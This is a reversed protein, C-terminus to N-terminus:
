LRHLQREKAGQAAGTVASPPSGAVAGVVAGSGPGVVHSAADAALYSSRVLPGAEVHGIGLAQGAEALQQFEDPHWWKVVPLHSASPRLYQGLTVIDTQIAALDALAAVLEAETEGLGVILSTKTTLGAQKALALVALSRAYSAQPRVAPQLRLVTELNHNLVVPQQAFVQELADRQGKFDPILLEVATHPCRQRLAQLCAVFQSAGGDPLDDRAVATLVVYDLQMQAVADALQSPEQPDPQEPRRTDVLCFGCARTCREGNIMFTATGANWCESINPCGAEECVTALNHERVTQKLRWYNPGPNFKARMWSPKRERYPLSVAVGAESLKRQHRPSTSHEFPPEAAPIPNPNQGRGQNQSQSRGWPLAQSEWGARGWLRTAQETICDVVTAMDVGLGAEHLSTVRLGSIGCPVIQNFWALDCNVNLAFGHMTRGRRLRVGVAALKAPSDSQPRLWVGPYRELRGVDPLGLEALTDILLQEVQNVYAVSSIMGGAAKPPPLNAPQGASPAVPQGAPQALLLLIPYGVLQGPGHYTIDGGREVRHLEAGVAAPDVLLHEGTAHAGLTFVHPHELLLLHNDPSHAFLAQQLAWADLYAVQGLWRVRM